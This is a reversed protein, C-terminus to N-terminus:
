TSSEPSPGVLRMRATEAIEDVSHSATWGGSRSVQRLEQLNTEWPKAPAEQYEEAVMAAFEPSPDPAAVRDIAALTEPEFRRRSLTRRDRDPRAGRAESGEGDVDAQAWAKRATIVVLLRWLDDRDNGTSPLERARCDRRLLQRLRQPRRGGRGRRGRTRPDGLDSSTAPSGSSTTEFYRDWLARAAEADGGEPRRDMRSVSGKEMWRGHVRGRNGADSNAADGSRGRSRAMPESRGTMIESLDHCTM